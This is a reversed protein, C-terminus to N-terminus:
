QNLKRQMVQQINNDDGQSPFLPSIYLNNDTLSSTCKYAGMKQTQGNPEIGFTIHSEPHKYKIM